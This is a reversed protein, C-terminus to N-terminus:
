DNWVNRVDRLARRVRLYAVTRYSLLHSFFYERRLYFVDLRELAVRDCGPRVYDLDASCAVDFHERVVGRTSSNYGGYPYAFANVRHQIQDEIAKQSGIIEERAAVKSLRTLNPHTKTHAGFQIGLGSM